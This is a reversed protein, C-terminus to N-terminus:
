AGGGPAPEPQAVQAAEPAQAAQAAAAKHREGRLHSAYPQGLATHCVDEQGCVDCRRHDENKHVVRM